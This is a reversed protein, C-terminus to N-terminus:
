AETNMREKLNVSPVFTATRREDVKHEEGTRPNRRTMPARVVPQFKGFGRLMVPQDCALALSVAELFAAVVPAVDEVKSGSKNATMRLVDAQNM